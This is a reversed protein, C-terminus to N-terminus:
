EALGAAELAQAKEVFGRWHVIKDNRVTLLALHPHEIEIGSGKGRGSERAIVLVRDGVDIFEEVELRWDDWAEVWPRTAEVVGHHGRFIKGDPRLRLDMECEPDFCSLAQLPDSSVYAEYCRRAVEM